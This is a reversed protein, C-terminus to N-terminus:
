TRPRKPHAKSDCASLPNKSKPWAHLKPAAARLLLITTTAIFLSILITQYELVPFIAAPVGQVEKDTSNQTFLGFGLATFKVTLYFSYSTNLAIETPTDTLNTDQVGWATWTLLSPNASTVTGLMHGHVSINMFMGSEGLPIPIDPSDGLAEPTPLMYSSSTETTLVKVHYTINIEESGESANIHCVSSEQLCDFTANFKLTTSVNFVVTGYDDAYDVRSTATYSIVTPMARVPFIFSAVLVAAIIVAKKM